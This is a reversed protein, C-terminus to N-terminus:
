GKSFQQMRKEFIKRFGQEWRQLLISTSCMKLTSYFSMSGNAQLFYLIFVVFASFVLLFGRALIWAYAVM